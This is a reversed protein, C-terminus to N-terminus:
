DETKVIRLYLDGVRDKRTQGGTPMTSNRIGVEVREGDLRLAAARKGRVTASLSYLRNTQSFEQILVWQGPSKRLTEIVGQWDVRGATGPLPATQPLEERVDAVEYSM